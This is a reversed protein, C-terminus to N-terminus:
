ITFIFFFFLFIKNIFDLKGDLIAYDIADKFSNRSKIPRKVIVHHNNESDYVHSKDEIDTKERTARIVVPLIDFTSDDTVKSLNM